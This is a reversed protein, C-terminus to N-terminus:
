TGVYMNHVSEARRLKYAYDIYTRICKHLYTCIYTDIYTHLYAHVYTRIYRDIYTFICTRIYTHVYAYVYTCHNRTVIFVDSLDELWNVKIHADIQKKSLDISLCQIIAEAM